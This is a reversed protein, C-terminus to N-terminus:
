PDALRLRGMAAALHDLWIEQFCPFEITGVRHERVTFGAARLQRRWSGPQEGFMDRCVHHGCVAMFPTLWVTRAGAQRLRAIMAEIDPRGMLLGLFLLPDRATMMDQLELYQKQGAHYTGHGVLIVAEDPRRQAPIYGSLGACIRKLDEQDNLLPAGMVVQQFGKRPHEYAAALNKTWDFEVGPITHLAQVVLHTVGSDHMRSLAVAVCDHPLGQAALKRRVKHATFGWALPVDPYRERVRAEFGDYAQRAQLVSTGFASLLIGPRKPGRPAEPGHDHCHDHGHDSHHDHHEHM